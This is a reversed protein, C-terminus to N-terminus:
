TVSLRTKLGTPRVTNPTPVFWDTVTFPRCTLPAVTAPMRAWPPLRVVATLMVPVGIPRAAPAVPMLASLAVSVIPAPLVIVPPVVPRAILPAEAAIVPLVSPLRGNLPWLPCYMAREPLARSLWSTSAVATLKSPTVPAVAV